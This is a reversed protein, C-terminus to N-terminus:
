AFTLIPVLWCSNVAFRENLLAPVYVNETAYMPFSPTQFFRPTRCVKVTTGAFPSPTGTGCGLVDCGVVFGVPLTGVGVVLVGAAGLPGVPSKGFALLVPTGAPVASVVYLPGHSILVGLVTMSLLITLQSRPMLVVPTIILFERILPSTLSPSPLFVLKVIWSESTMLLARAAQWHMPESLKVASRTSTLPPLRPM